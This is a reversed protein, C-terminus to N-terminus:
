QTSRKHGVLIYGNLNATLSIVNGDADMNFTFTIEGPYPYFFVTESEPLIEARQGRDIFYIKDDEVEVEFYDSESMEYKGAYPRYVAPDLDIAKKPLVILENRRSEFAKQIMETSRKLLEEPNLPDPVLETNNQALNDFCGDQLPAYCEMSAHILNREGAQIEDCNLASRYIILNRFEFTSNNSGIIFATPELQGKFESVLKGNVYVLMTSDAYRQVIILQQWDRDQLPHSTLAISRSRCVIRNDKNLSISLESGDSWILALTGARSAKFDFGFSFSHMLSSPIYYLQDAKGKKGLITSENNMAKEPIQKGDEIAKFLGPPISLYFEEHGLNNPHNPDFTTGEPFHGNGDELAGLFNICPYGWCNMKLNMKKLYSYQEPTFNNNAYCLGLVPKINNEECREIIKKMGTEFSLSVSDPDGTELGENALSLGILVIDPNEYLVDKDFRALVDATNDGPVSKNIVIFGKDALYRELRYAYGNKFDYKEQYSTVWGSAVSSGLIIIKRNQNDFDQSYSDQFTLVIALALLCPTFIITRMWKNQNIIPRTM